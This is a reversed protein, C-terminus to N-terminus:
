IRQESPFIYEQVGRYFKTGGKPPIYESIPLNLHQSIFWDLDCFGMKERFVLTSSLRPNIEFLLPGEKTLRLQINMVGKLELATAISEVYDTIEKNDIVEGKATFGGQLERKIVLSRIETVESCFIPCTYEECDPILYEQWIFSEKDYEMLVEKSEVKHIGKSGQGFRPKIIAPYKSPYSDLLLGHQPVHINKSSLYLLCEHKDLCKEIVLNNSKVIVASSIKELGSIAIRGIEAESTPIFIQIDNAVIYHELWELYNSSNARPVVDCKDCIFNGAHNSYIDIGYLKGNWNKMRLIRAVGFGIDSAIGSILVNM